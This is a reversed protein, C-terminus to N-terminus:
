RRLMIVVVVIGIVVGGVVLIPTPGNQYLIDFDPNFNLNPDSVNYRIEVPDDKKSDPHTGQEAVEIYEGEYIHGDIWFTYVVSYSTSGDRNSTRFEVSSVSAAAVPWRRRGLYRHKLRDFM